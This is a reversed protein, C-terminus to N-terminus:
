GTVTFSPRSVRNAAQILITLTTRGGNDELTATDITAAEDEPVDPLGM